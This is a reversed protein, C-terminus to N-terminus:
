FGRPKTLDVFDRQDQETLVAAEPPASPKKQSWDVDGIVGDQVLANKFLAFRATVQEIAGPRDKCGSLVELFMRFYNDKYLTVLAPGTKDPVQIQWHLHAITGSNYENAGFRFGCFGGPLQFREELHVVLRGLEAWAEPTIESLKTWHNAAAIIINFLHYGYPVPSLWARWHLWKEEDIVKNVTRDLHETDFACRGEEFPRMLAAQEPSRVHQSFGLAETRKGNGM